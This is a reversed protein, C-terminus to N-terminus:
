KEESCKTLKRKQELCESHWGESHNEVCRQYMDLQEGCYKMVQLLTANM